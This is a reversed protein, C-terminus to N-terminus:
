SSNEKGNKKKQIKFYKIEYNNGNEKLAIEYDKNQKQLILYISTVSFKWDNESDIKVNSSSWNQMLM